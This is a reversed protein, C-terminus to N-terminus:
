AEVYAAMDPERVILLGDPTSEILGRQRFRKLFYGVRSRTTGVMGALEEQTIRQEIRFQDAQATGLKRGLRLLTAGLRRETDATVMSTIVQQQEALRLTLHRLWEERLAYDTLVEMFQVRHIPRLVSSVMAVASESREHDLLASEGIVDGGTFIGLLCEKGAGSVMLTKIRGSEILYLLWDDRDGAMYLTQHRARKVTSNTASRDRIRARFLESLLGTDSVDSSYKTVRM